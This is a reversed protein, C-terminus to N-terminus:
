VGGFGQWVSGSCLWMERTARTLERNGTHWSLLCAGPYDKTVQGAPCSTGLLATFGDSHSTIELIVMVKNGEGGPEPGYFWEDSFSSVLVPVVNVFGVDCYSRMM